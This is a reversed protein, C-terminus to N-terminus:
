QITRQLRLRKRRITFGIGQLFRNRCTRRVYIEYCDANRYYIRGRRGLMSRKRTKPHLGTAEIGFGKALLWQVYKLLQTNTNSATLNGEQSVSGESDFFGRLFASICRRCHEVWPRLDGPPQRLFNYLLVSRAEVHIERRNKDVWLAHRRSNLVASLCRDFESVFEPDISQLRIRRNYGKRNISGDGLKVGIIYALEPTPEAVFRNASGLPNHIQRLWGSLLSKSPAFGYNEDLISRIKSYSLGQQRLLKAREYIEVRIELPVPVKYSPSRADGNTEGNQLTFPQIGVSM